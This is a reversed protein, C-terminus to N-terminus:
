YVALLSEFETDKILGRDILVDYLTTQKKEAEKEADSFENLTIFEPEVLLFKLKENTIQPM